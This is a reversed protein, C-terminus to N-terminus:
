AAGGFHWPQLWEPQANKIRWRVVSADIGLLCGIRRLSLQACEPHVCARMRATIQNRAAVNGPSRDGALVGAGFGTQQLVQQLIQQALADKTQKRTKTRM